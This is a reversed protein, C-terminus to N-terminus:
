RGLGKHYTIRDPLTLKGMNNKKRETTGESNKARKIEIHIKSDAHWNQYVLCQSKSQSQVSDISCIPLPLMKAINLRETWSDPIDRWKNLAKKIEKLLMKYNNTYLIWWHHSCIRQQVVFYNKFVPFSNGWNKTNCVHCVQLNLKCQPCNRLWNRLNPDYSLSSYVRIPLKALKQPTLVGVM